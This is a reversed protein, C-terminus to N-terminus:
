VDQDLQLFGYDLSRTSLLRTRAEAVADCRLLVRLATDGAELTGQGRVPEQDRERCARVVAVRARREDPICGCIPQRNGQASQRVALETALM